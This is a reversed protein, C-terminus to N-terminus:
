YEFGHESLFKAFAGKPVKEVFTASSDLDLTGIATLRGQTDVQNFDRGEDRISDNRDIIGDQDIRHCGYTNRYSHYILETKTLGLQRHIHHIHNVLAFPPEGPCHFICGVNRLATEALILVFSHKELNSMENSVGGSLALDLDLDLDTDVASDIVDGDIVWKVTFPTKSIEHFCKILREVPNRLNSGHFVIKCTVM